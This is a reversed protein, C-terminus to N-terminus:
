SQTQPIPNREPMVFLLLIYAIVGLGFPWISFFVFGIRVLSPDINFYEALGGCVGFMKKDRASRQLKRSGDDKHKASKKAGGAPRPKVQSTRVVFFVGAAILLLPVVYDWSIHWWHDWRFVDLNSLLLLTGLAVFLLGLIAAASNHPAASSPNDVGPERPIIIWAIVYVLIGPILPFLSIVIWGIRVVTPDVDLYEAIGGCVGGIMKNTRSRYLRKSSEAM